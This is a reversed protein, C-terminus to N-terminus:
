VEDSEDDNEEHPRAELIQFAAEFAAALRKADKSEVARLFDEAAVHLPDADEAPKSEMGEDLPKAIIIGAAPRRKLFPLSM